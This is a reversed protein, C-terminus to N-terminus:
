ILEGLKVMGAVIGQRGGGSLHFVGGPGELVTPALCLQLVYNKVSLSNSVTRKPSRRKGAFDSHGLFFDDQGKGNRKRGVQSASPFM